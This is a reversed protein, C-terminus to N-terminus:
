IDGGTEKFFEKTMEDEEEASSHIFGSFNEEPVLFAIDEYIKEQESDSFTEVSKEKQPEDLIEGNFVGGFLFTKQFDNM